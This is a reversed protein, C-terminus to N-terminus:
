SAKRAKIALLMGLHSLRREEIEFGNKELLRDLKDGDFKQLHVGDWVRGKWKTWFFWIFRFLWSESPVLVVLWGETKLCRRMEKLVKEFEAIHEMVELCTVLDFTGDGFPLKEAGVAQFQFRPRKKKAYAIAARDTDVGFVETNPLTRAIEETFTGANCGVDLVKSKVEPLFEKMVRFREKHWIRQLLNKKIGEDYYDPPVATKKIKM